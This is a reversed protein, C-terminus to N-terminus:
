RAATQKAFSGVLAGGRPRPESKQSRRTTTGLGSQSSASSAKLMGPWLVNTQPAAKRTRRTSCHISRVTVTSAAESVETVLRATGSTSHGVCRDSSSKTIMPEAHKWSRGRTGAMCIGLTAASASNAPSGSSPRIRAARPAKTRRPPPETCGSGASRASTPRTKRLLRGRSTKRSPSRLLPRRWSRRRVPRSRASRSTEWLVTARTGM